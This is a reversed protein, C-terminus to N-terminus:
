NVDKGSMIVSLAGMGSSNVYEVIMWLFPVQNLDVLFSGPAGAPQVIAPNFTLAIFNVGDNSCQVTFIGTPTGTWSVQLGMNDLQQINTVPSTLTSTGTMAGGVILPLEYVVRKNGM